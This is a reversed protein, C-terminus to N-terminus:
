NWTYWVDLYKWLCQICQLVFLIIIIIICLNVHITPICESNIMLMADDSEDFGLENTANCKYDGTDNLRVDRLFLSGNEVIELRGDDLDLPEGNKTWSIVPKPSGRATCNLLGSQGLLIDTM